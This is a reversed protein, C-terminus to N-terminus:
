KEQESPKMILSGAAIATAYTEVFEQFNIGLVAEGGWQVYIGILVFFHIFHFVYYKTNPNLTNAKKVSSNIQEATINENEFDQAQIFEDAEQIYEENELDNLDDVAIEDIFSLNLKQIDLNRFSMKNLNEQIRQVSSIHSTLLSSIEIPKNILHTPYKESILSLLKQSPYSQKLVMQQLNQYKAIEKQLHQVPSAINPISTNSKM